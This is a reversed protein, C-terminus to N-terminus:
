IKIKLIRIILKFNLYNNKSIETIKNLNIKKNQFKNNIKLPINEINEGCHIISKTTKIMTESYNLKSEDKVRLNKNEKFITIKQSELLFKDYDLLNSKKKDAVSLVKSKKKKNKPKKEIM